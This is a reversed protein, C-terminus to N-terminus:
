GVGENLFKVDSFSLPQGDQLDRLISEYRDKAYGSVKPITKILYKIHMARWESHGEAQAQREEM